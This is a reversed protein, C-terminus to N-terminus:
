AAEKWAGLEDLKWYVRACARVDAAASHAGVLEEGFFHRVCEELKPAKPKNFGAAIMRETPPLNVIPAAAECTCRAPKQALLKPLDALGAQQSMLGLMRLDFAVNHAVLLDSKAALRWFIGGAGQPAIGFETAMETTIGHIKSAEEHIEIGNNVVLDISAVERRDHFMAAALQVVRAQQPDTASLHDRPIGSTETDFILIRM